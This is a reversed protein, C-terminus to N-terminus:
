FLFVLPCMFPFLCSFVSVCLFRQVWSGGFDNSANLSDACVFVFCLYFGDQNETFSSKKVDFMVLLFTKKMSWSMWFVFVCLEYMQEERQQTAGCNPICVPCRYLAHSELVGPWSHKIHGCHSRPFHFCCSPSKQLVGLLWLLVATFLAKLTSQVAPSRFSHPGSCM